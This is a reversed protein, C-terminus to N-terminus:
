VHNQDGICKLWTDAIAVEEHPCGTQNDVHSLGSEVDDFMVRRDCRPDLVTWGPSGSFLASAMVTRDREILDCHRTVRAHHEAGGRLLTAAFAIFHGKDSAGVASELFMTLCLAVPCAICSSGHAQRETPAGLVEGDRRAVGARM